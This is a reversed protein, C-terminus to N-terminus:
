KNSFSQKKLSLAIKLVFVMSEKHSKSVFYSKQHISFKSAPDIQSSFRKNNKRSTKKLFM